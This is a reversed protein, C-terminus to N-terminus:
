PLGSSKVYLDTDNEELTITIELRRANRNVTLSITDGVQKKRVYTAIQSPEEIRNKDIGEIIDGRRLGSNDAPSYPEVQIVLAGDSIPLGYYQRLQPTV